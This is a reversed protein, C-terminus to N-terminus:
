APRVGAADRLWSSRCGVATRRCGTAGAPTRSIDAPTHDAVQRHRVEHHGVGEPDPDVGAEGGRHDIVHYVADPRKRLVGPASGAVDCWQGPVTSHFRQVVCIGQSYARAHERKVATADPWQAQGHDDREMLVDRVQPQAQGRDPGRSPRQRRVQLDSVQNHRRIARHVIRGLRRGFRTRPQQDDLARAARRDGATAGGCSGRAVDEHEDVGVDDNM